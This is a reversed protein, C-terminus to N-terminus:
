NRLLATLERIDAVKELNLIFDIAKEARDKPMKAFAACDRFKEAVDDETMPYEASGKAADV